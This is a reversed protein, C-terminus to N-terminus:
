LRSVEAHIPQIVCIMPPVCVKRFAEYKPLTLDEFTDPDYEERFATAQLQEHHFALAANDFLM